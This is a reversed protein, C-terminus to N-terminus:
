REVDHSIIRTITVYAYLIPQWVARAFLVSLMGKTALPLGNGGIGKTPLMM